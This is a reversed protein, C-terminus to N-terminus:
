PWTRPSPPTMACAESRRASSLRSRAQLVVVEDRRFVFGHKCYSPAHPWNRGYVHHSKVGCPAPPTTAGHLLHVCRRWRLLGGRGDHLALARAALPESRGVLARRELPLGGPGSWLDSRRDHVLDEAGRPPRQVRRDLAVHFLSETEVEALDPNVG